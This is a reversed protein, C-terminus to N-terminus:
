EKPSPELFSQRYAEIIKPGCLVEIATKLAISCAIARLLHAELVYKDHDLPHWIDKRKATHHHLFGRLEIVHSIIDEVSMGAYKKLFCQLEVKRSTVAAASDAMVEEIAKTLMDSKKFAEEIGRKKFQGDGFMSELFFYFDYIADIFREEYFSTIGKRFFALPMEINRVEDGAIVCRALVDFPLPLITDTDAETVDTYFDNLQISANEENTEPIWTTKFRNVDIEHVGFISLLAEISRVEQKVFAFEPAPINIHAKARSSPTLTITPMDNPGNVPVTVALHSLVGNEHLFEFIMGRLNIPKVEKVKIQGSIKFTYVCKM